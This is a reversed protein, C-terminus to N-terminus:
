QDGGKAKAIVARAKKEAPTQPLDVPGATREIDLEILAQLLDPAAEILRANAKARKINEESDGFSKNPYALYFIVNRDETLIAGGFGNEAEVGWPGPTHQTSHTM